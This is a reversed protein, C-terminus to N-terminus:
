RSIPLSGSHRAPQERPQSLIPCLSIIRAFAPSETVCLAIMMNRMNSGMAAIISLCLCMHPIGIFIDVVRMIVNDLKPYFAALLGLISGFFASVCIVTVGIFLTYRSGYIVRSLIDRGFNDTGFWHKASPFLLMEDYNQAKYDYPTIWPAFIAMLTVAVMVFLGGMAMKNRRLRRWMERM